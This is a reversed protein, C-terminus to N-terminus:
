IKGFEILEVWSERSVSVERAAESDRCDAHLNGCRGFRVVGNKLGGPILQRKWWRRGEYTASFLPGTKALEAAYRDEFDPWGGANALYATCCALSLRRSCQDISPSVAMSLVIPNAPSAPAIKM